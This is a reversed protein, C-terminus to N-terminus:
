LVYITQNKEYGVKILLPISIGILSYIPWTIEQHYKIVPFESLMEFPLNYVLIVVISVIKFSMFHLALIQLTNKGIYYLGVGRKELHYCIGLTCFMGNCAVIIYIIVDNFSCFMSMHHYIATFFLMIVCSVFLSYRSYFSENEIHRYLYGILYFVAGLFIISLNGIFPINVEFFKSLLLGLICVLFTIKMRSHETLYSALKIFLRVMLSALFLTKLFWFGGLVPEHRDMTFVVFCFRVIYDHLDYVYFVNGNYGYLGNYFGIDFLFNHLLLFFLSWKLYPLYLGRVRKSIFTKGGGNVNLFYGSVFFFLPMHFNYILRDLYEPCGSHGVVMLIIGIAKFTTLYNHKTDM